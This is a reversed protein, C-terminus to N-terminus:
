EETKGRSERNEGAAALVMARLRERFVPVSWAAAHRVLAAAPFDEPRFAQIAAAISEASQEDFFLATPPGEMLSPRGLPIMTEQIGGEGYAIVPTGSAVAELPVLGYELHPTFLVARAQAYERAVAADDLAGLFQVTPGAMARLRAEDEGGGLVRLPVGLKTCAEIAYDLKKWRELRSVILYHDGRQAAPTFRDLEIPCPLIEASRGYADHIQQASMRSIGIFHDVRAAAALDRRRLQPLLARFVRAKFDRGFYGEPQWIARTPTYCYCVHLGNPVRIYKAVTASSSLVVDFDSLDLREMVHTALAFANRFANTSRVFPDLWTTRIGRGRFYPLTADPDYTLTYAPADPFAECMYQFVRESGGLSLLQDHVLALRM